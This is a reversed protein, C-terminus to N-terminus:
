FPVPVEFSYLHSDLPFTFEIKNAHLHLPENSNLTRNKGYLRDGVIPMVLGSAAHLRLQHTRGTHPYFLVRSRNNESSIFEYETVAEKGNNFDVCQRPRDLWDPSLPLNICGSASIELAKYDGVLDAIYRKKIRRTAFLTQLHKYAEEDFAAIILGSTDQDLRHAVKVEREKGYKNILWDQLSMASGKGPVSLMSSPKNVVCFWQNEFIIEPDTTWQSSFESDLPLHISLGQLMWTLVPLCRGRCAPYHEGHIRAEGSKSKGYWYEAIHLPKWGRLYAAHLLKPACCEGAGSPPTKMPTDTFIEALSKAKGEANLLKFNSFLWNQLDESAEHRKRKMEELQKRVIIFKGEVPALEEAVRKKLRRLEAKEFQSQRILEKEEEASLVGSERRMDREIKSQKCVARFEEIQQDLKHKTSEYEEKIKEYKERQFHTIRQNQLSIERETTKFHGDPKLYDFVPEVFGPYNFGGLGLQGSFAYLTQHKGDKDAAILVGLMIGEDVTRCFNIDEPKRSGRLESIKQLLQRFAEDCEEHPIYDFPNNM